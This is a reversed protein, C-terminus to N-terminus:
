VAQLIDTLAIAINLKTELDLEDKYMAHSLPPEALGELVLAVGMGCRELAYAKVVGPVDLNKLLAYEHRLKAVEYLSPYESKLTKIAVSAGDSDRRGGYIISEKGEYITSDITYGAVHLPARMM